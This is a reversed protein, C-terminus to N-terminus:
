TDIQAIQTELAGIDSGLHRHIGGVPLRQNTLQWCADRATVQLTSLTTTEATYMNQANFQLQADGIHVYKQKEVLKSRWKWIDYILPALM